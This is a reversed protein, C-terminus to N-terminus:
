HGYNLDPDNIYPIVSDLENCIEKITREHITHNTPDTGKQFGAKLYCWWSKGELPCEEQHLERVRPDNSVDKYTRARKYKM